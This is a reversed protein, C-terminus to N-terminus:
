VPPNVVTEAYAPSRGLLEKRGTAAVSIGILM